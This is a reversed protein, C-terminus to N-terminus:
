GRSATSTSAASPARSSRGTSRFAAEAARVAADVDAEGAEAVEALKAETAPNITDFYRKSKPKVWEGGVFLEYRKALRVHDPSEPAPAYDFVGTGSELRFELAPREARVRAVGTPAAASEPVSRTAM